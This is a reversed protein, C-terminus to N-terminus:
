CLIQDLLRKKGSQSVSPAKFTAGALLRPKDAYEAALDDVV